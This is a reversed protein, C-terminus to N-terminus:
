YYFIKDGYRLDIYKKGQLEAGRERKLAFFRSIQESYDNKLSFYLELDNNLKIKISNYEEDLIIKRLGFDSGDSLDNYLNISFNIYESDLKINKKDDDVKKNGVNEIIPSLNDKKFDDNITICENLNISNQTESSSNHELDQNLSLLYSCDPKYYIIQGDKNAFFYNNEELFIIALDKEKIKIILSRKLLNKKISIESFNFEDLSKILGKKNFIILNKQSFLFNKKNKQNNIINEVDEVKVRRLGEIQVNKINFINSFFLFYVLLGVFFVFILIFKLFINNKKHPVARFSGSFSKKNRELFSHNKTRNEM